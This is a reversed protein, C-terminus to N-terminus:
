LVEVVTGTDLNNYLEQADWNTLRIAGLTNPKGVNEPIPSGHIGYSPKNLGIWAVGVPNNPGAPLIVSETKDDKKVTAKYNPLNVKNAVSFKGSPLKQADNSITAPYAAVLKTGQYAYLVGDQRHAVLRDIKGSFAKGTNIVTITEGAVFKKDPNLKHVYATSMHFREGLMEAVSEYHMSDLKASEQPTAPLKGFTGKVDADTITYAVLVPQGAPINKNLADWTAQNMKGTPELGHMKQFSTLAKKSNAGWGGDIAGPSAHNWDLLMQLKVTMATNANMQPQWVASNVQEIYQALQFTSYRKGDKEVVNQPNLTTPLVVEGSIIEGAPTSNALALQSLTSLFIASFAHVAFKKM